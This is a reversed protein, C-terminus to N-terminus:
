IIKIKKGVELLAMLIMSMGVFYITSEPSVYGECMECNYNWMKKGRIRKSIKGGACELFLLSITILLLSLGLPFEMLWISYIILAGWGYLNGITSGTPTPNKRYILYESLIGGLAGIGFIGTYNM